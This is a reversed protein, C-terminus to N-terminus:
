EGDEIREWLHQGVTGIVLVKLSLLACKMRNPTLQLGVMELLEDRSIRRAQDLPMGILKEGLMSASAQSIACGHGGWGVERIIGTEDVHLTLHLHDGCLPNLEEHDFDPAALLGWNRPTRAHDLIMERYFELDDNTM